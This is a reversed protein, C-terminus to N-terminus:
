RCFSSKEGFFGRDASSGPVIAGMAAVNALGGLEVPLRFGWGLPSSTMALRRGTIQRGTRDLQSCGDRWAQRLRSCRMRPGFSPV